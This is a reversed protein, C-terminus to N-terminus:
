SHGSRGAQRDARRVRLAVRVRKQLHFNLKENFIDVRKKKM